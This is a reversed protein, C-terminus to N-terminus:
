REHNLEEISIYIGPKDAWFKEIIESAVLADDKWYGLKTMVDKLLKQLNDTDPRTTKYEGNQHAGKLPFCWKVVLRVAGTYKEPPVFKSLHAELKQRASCLAPPDYFVPKGNKITVQHEQATVTPPIMQLFFETKM